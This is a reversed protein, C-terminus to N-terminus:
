SKKTWADYKGWDDLTKQATGIQEETMKARLNPTIIRSGPRGLTSQFEQAAMLSPFRGLVRNDFVVVYEGTPLIKNPEFM